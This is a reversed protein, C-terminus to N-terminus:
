DQIDDLFVGVLVPSTGNGNQIVTIKGNGLKKVTPNVTSIIDPNCTPDYFLVLGYGKYAIDLLRNVDADACGAIVEVRVVHGPYPVYEEHAIVPSAILLATALVFHKFM